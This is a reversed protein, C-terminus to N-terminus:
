IQFNDLKDPFDSKEDIVDDTVQGSVDEFTDLCTKVRRSLDDIVDSIVDSIIDSIDDHVNIVDDIIYCLFCSGRSSICGVSNRLTSERMCIPLSELHARLSELKDPIDSSTM